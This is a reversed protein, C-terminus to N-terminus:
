QLSFSVKQRVRTPVPQGDKTGPVFKWRQVARVAAQDFTDDPRSSIVQVKRVAGEPDVIFELVVEGEIRRMRARPPYAPNLRALPRPPEDLEGIEFILEQVQQALAGQRVGFDVNFDGQIEGLAIDLNMPPAMVPFPQPAVQVDPRPTNVTLTQPEFIKEPPPPIEPPIRQIRDVPRVHTDPQPTPSLRELTPLLLYLTLTIGGSLLVARLPWRPGSETHHPLASAPPSSSSLPM